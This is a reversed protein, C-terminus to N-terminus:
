EGDKDEPSKLWNTVAKLAADVAEIHPNLRKVFDDDDALTACISDAEDRLERAAKMIAAVEAQPPYPPLGAITPAHATFM